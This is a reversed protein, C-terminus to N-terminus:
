TYTQKYFNLKVQKNTKIPYVHMRKARANKNMKNRAYKSLDSPDGSYLHKNYLGRKMNSFTNFKEILLFIFSHKPQFFKQSFIVGNVPFSSRSKISFM